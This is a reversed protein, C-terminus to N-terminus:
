SDRRGWIGRQATKAVAEAQKIQRTISHCDEPRTAAVALGHEVLDANLLVDDVFVYGLLKGDRAIRRRDLRLRITRQETWDSLRQVAQNRLQDPWPEPAAIGLLRLSARVDPENCSCLLLHRGDVVQQVRYDGPPLWRATDDASPQRRLLVAAIVLLLAAFALRNWRRKRFPRKM